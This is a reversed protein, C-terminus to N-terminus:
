NKTKNCILAHFTKVPRKFKIKEIIAKRMFAMIMEGLGPSGAISNYVQYAQKTSVIIYGGPQILIIL